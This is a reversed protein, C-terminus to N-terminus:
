FPGQTLGPPQDLTPVESGLADACTVSWGPVGSGGGGGGTGPVEHEQRTRRLRQNEGPVHEGKQGGPFSGRGVPTLDSEPRTELFVEQRRSLGLGEM